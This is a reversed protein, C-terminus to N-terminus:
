KQATRSRESYHTARYASLFQGVVRRPPPSLGVVLRQMGIICSRYPAPVSVEKNQHPGKNKPEDQRLIKPKTISSQINHHRANRDEQENSKTDILDIVEEASCGSTVRAPPFLLM